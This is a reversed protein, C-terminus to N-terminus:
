SEWCTKLIPELNQQLLEIWQNKGKSCGDINWLLFVSFCASTRSELPHSPGNQINADDDDDVDHLITRLVFLFWSSACVKAKRLEQHQCWDIKSFKVWWYYMLITEKYFFFIFFLIYILVFSVSSITIFLLFLIVRYKKIYKKWVWSTLEVLFGFTLFLICSLLFIQVKYLFIFFFYFLLTM